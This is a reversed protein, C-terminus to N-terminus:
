AVNIETIILKVEPMPLGRAACWSAFRRWGQRARRCSPMAEVEDFAVTELYPCGDVGSGGAAVVFGITRTDEGRTQPVIRQTARDQSIKHRNKYQIIRDRMEEAYIDLLTSADTDWVLACVGEDAGLVIAHRTAGM